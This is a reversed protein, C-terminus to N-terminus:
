PVTQTTAITKGNLFKKKNIALAPILILTGLTITKIYQSITSYQIGIILDTTMVSLIFSLALLARTFKYEISRDEAQYQEIVLKCLICITPFVFYFAYKMQHPFILPMLLTIYSLEYLSHQKSFSSTFPLSGLFYLTFLVLLGIIAIIFLTATYYDMTVINRIYPAQTPTLLRYLLASLNHPFYDVMDWKFDPNDPRLIAYWSANLEDFRQKGLFIIPMWFTAICTGITAITAIIKRRYIFYPLLVIPMIKIIISVGILIGVKWEQNQELLILSELMAWLLFITMQTHHFNLEIFRSMYLIILFWLLRDMKVNQFKIDFYNRLIYISRWLILVSIILWIFIGVRLPLLALPTLVMAWFPSYSYRLHNFPPEYINAGNLMKNAAEIYSAFDGGKVTVNIFYAVVVFMLVLLIFLQSRNYTKSQNM